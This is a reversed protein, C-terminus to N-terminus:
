ELARIANDIIPRQLDFTNSFFSKGLLHASAPCTVMWNSLDREVREVKVSTMEGMKSGMLM